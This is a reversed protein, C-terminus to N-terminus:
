RKDPPPPILLFTEGALLQLSATTPQQRRCRRKLWFLWWLFFWEKVVMSCAWKRDGHLLRLHAPFTASIQTGWWNLRCKLPKTILINNISSPEETLWTTVSNLATTETFSSNLRNDESFCHKTQKCCVVGSSFAWLYNQFRVCFLFVFWSQVEFPSETRYHLIQWLYQM